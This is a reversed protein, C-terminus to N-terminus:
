RAESLLSRIPFITVPSARVQSPRLGALDRFDRCMHAQDFYGVDLATQVLSAETRQLQDVARQLRGVRLLQKAGVGVEDLLVRTLYQRSWGLERALGAVSPPTSGFCARVAQAVLPQSHAGRARSGARALLAAELGRVAALPSRAELVRPSLWGGGIEGLPVRRDTLEHAAVGLLAAAAGPRFRVAATTAAPATLVFARTMAGVVHVAHSDVGIMVDICGDPLICRPQLAATPLVGGAEEGSRVWFRDVLARLAPHPLIERYSM